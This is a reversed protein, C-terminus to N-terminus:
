DEIQASWSANEKWMQKQGKRKQSGLEQAMKRMKEGKEIRWHWESVSLIKM